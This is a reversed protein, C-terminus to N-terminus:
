EVPAPDSFSTREFVYVKTSPDGYIELGAGAKMAVHELFRRRDPLSEWVQPLLLGRQYGREVMVGDVGPRVKDILDEFSSYPLERLPSLISVEVELRDLEHPALPRFRPDHHGAAVANKAVDWALPLRAEVSGVCGRLEGDIHLTVFTAAPRHLAVPLRDLDPVWSHDGGITSRRLAERAISFLLETDADTLGGLEPHAMTM